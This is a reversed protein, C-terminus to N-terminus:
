LHQAIFQLLGARRQERDGRLIQTREPPIVSRYNNAVEVAISDRLELDNSQASDPEFPIETHDPLLVLDIYYAAWKKSADAIPFGGIVETNELGSRLRIYALGDLGSRDALVLPRTLDGAELEQTTTVLHQAALGSLEFATQIRSKYKETLQLQFELNWNEGLLTSDGSYNAAWRAAEPVFVTPTLQDTVPLNILGYGLDDYPLEKGALENVIDCLKGQEEFSEVLTTKGAAHTGDVACVLPRALFLETEGSSM